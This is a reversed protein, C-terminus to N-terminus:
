KELNRGGRLMAPGTSCAVSGLTHCMLSWCASTLFNLIHCYSEIVAGSTFSGLSFLCLSVRNGVAKFYFRSTELLWARVYPLLPPPMWHCLWCGSQMWYGMGLGSLISGEGKPTGSTCSLSYVSMCQCLVPSVSSLKLMVGECTLLVAPRHHRM